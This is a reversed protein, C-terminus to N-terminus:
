QLVNKLPGHKKKTQKPPPPLPHPHHHHPNRRHQCLVKTGNLLFITKICAVFLTETKLKCVPYQQFIHTYLYLVCRVTLFVGTTSTVPVSTFVTYIYLHHTRVVNESTGPVHVAGCTYQHFYTKLILPLLRTRKAGVDLCSRVVWGEEWIRRAM